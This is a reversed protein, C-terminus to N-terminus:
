GMFFNYNRLSGITFNNFILFYELFILTRSNM